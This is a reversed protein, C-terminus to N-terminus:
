RGGVLIYISYSLCCLLGLIIGLAPNAGAAIPQGNDTEPWIALVLGACALGLALWRGDTMREKFILWAALTVIVPYIYLLLSVLGIPIHRAAHFWFAAEGVYLIGGMGILGLLLRGRPWPLQRVFMVIAMLIGAIAFRLFLMMEVSVGRETA